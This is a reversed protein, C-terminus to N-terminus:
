NEFSAELSARFIEGIELSITLLSCARIIKKTYPQGGKRPPGRSPPLCAKSPRSPPPSSSFPSCRTRQKLPPSFPFFRLPTNLACDTSKRGPSFFSFPVRGQRMLASLSFFFLVAWWCERRPFPVRASSFFFLGLTRKKVSPLSIRRCPPHGAIKEVGGGFPPGRETHEPLLM